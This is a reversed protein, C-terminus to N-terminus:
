VVRNCTHLKAWVGKVYVCAQVYVWARVCVFACACVSVRVCYLLVPM